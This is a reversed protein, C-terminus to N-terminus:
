KKSAVAVISIGGMIALSSACVGAWAGVGEVARHDQFVMFGGVVSALTLTGFEVPFAVPIEFRRYTLRLWIVIGVFLVAGVGYLVVWLGLNSGEDDETVEGEEEESVSTYFLSNVAKLVLAGTAETAGLASPYLWGAIAVERPQPKSEEEEPQHEMHQYEEEGQEEEEEPIEVPFEKEVKFAWLMGAIMIVVLVGWFVLAEASTMTKQLADAAFHCVEAQVTVSFGIAGGVVSAYGLCATRNPAQDGLFWVAATANVLITLSFVAALVSVPAFTLAIAYIGNASFYIIAGLLWGVQKPLCGLVSAGDPQLLAYRQLCNGTAYCICAFLVLVIGVLSNSTAESSECSTTEAM